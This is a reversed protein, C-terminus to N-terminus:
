HLLDIGESWAVENMGVKSLEKWEILDPVSYMNSFKNLGSWLNLYESEYVSYGPINLAITKHIPDISTPLPLPKSFPVSPDFLRPQNAPVVQHDSRTRFASSPNQTAKPSLQSSFIFNARLGKWSFFTPFWFKSSLLYALDSNDLSTNNQHGARIAPAPPALADLKRKKSIEVRSFIKGLLIRLVELTEEIIPTPNQISDIIQLSSRVDSHHM